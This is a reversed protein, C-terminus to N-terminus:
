CLVAHSVPRLYFDVEIVRISGDDFRLRPHLVRTDAYLESEVILGLPEAEVLRFKAFARHYERLDVHVTVVLTDSGILSRQRQAELEGIVAKGNAFFQRCQLRSAVRM